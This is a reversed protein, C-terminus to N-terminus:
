KKQLLAASSSKNRKIKPKLSKPSKEKSKIPIKNKLYKSLSGASKSKKVNNTKKSKIAKSQISEPKQENQKSKSKLSSSKKLKLTPEKSQKPKKYEILSQSAKHVIIRMMKRKKKTKKYQKHKNQLKKNKRNKRKHRHIPAKNLECGGFELDDSISKKPSLSQNLRNIEDNQNPTIFWQQILLLKRSDDMKLMRPRSQQPIDLRDMMQIFTKHIYENYGDDKQKIKTGM